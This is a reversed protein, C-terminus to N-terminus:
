KKNGQSIYNQIEGKIGPREFWDRIYRELGFCSGREKLGNRCNFAAEFMGIQITFLPQKPNRMDIDFTLGRIRRSGGSVKEEIEKKSCLFNILAQELSSLQPNKGESM